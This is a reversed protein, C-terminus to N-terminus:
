FTHGLCNHKIGYETIEMITEITDVYSTSIDSRDIKKTCEFNNQNLEEFVFRM